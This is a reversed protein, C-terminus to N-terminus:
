SKTFFKRKTEISAAKPFMSHVSGDDNVIIEWLARDPCNHCEQILKEKMTQVERCIQAIAASHAARLKLVDAATLPLDSTELAVILSEFENEATTSSYAKVVFAAADHPEFNWFVRKPPKPDKWRRQLDSLKYVEAVVAPNHAPLPIEFVRLTAALKTNSTILFRESPALDM